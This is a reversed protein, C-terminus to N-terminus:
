DHLMKIFTKLIKIDLKNFMKTEMLYLADYSHMAAKYSRRTTLADFVDCVGIIRPFLTIESDKLGDPYGTGDMKEHHYRIGDLMNKDDIGIKIAIDYGHSPHTKMEKYEDLSLSSNKNVIDYNIKSKGLDHLLAACGLATLKKENLGLESGLSLAYISVNLSHTHTYYDYEIIKIYSAITDENHIISHLIPKVIKESRQVNEQADPNEYLSLTLETGSTYLVDTKEDITISKDHIINQIYKELHHEYQKKDNESIYLKEVKKIKQQNEKDITTSNPLFLVMQEQKNYFFIDFYVREGLRIIDKNILIYYHERKRIPGTQVIKKRKLEIV